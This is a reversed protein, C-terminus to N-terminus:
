LPATDVFVMVQAQTTRSLWGALQKLLPGPHSLRAGASSRSAATAVASAEDSRGGARLELAAMVANPAAVAGDALATARAAGLWWTAMFIPLSATPQTV